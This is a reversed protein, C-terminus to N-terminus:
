AKGWRGRLGLVPMVQLKLHIKCVLNQYLPELWERANSQVNHFQPSGPYLGAGKGHKFAAQWLALMPTAFLNKANARELTKLM